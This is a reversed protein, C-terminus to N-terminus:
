KNALYSPGLFVSAFQVRLLGSSAVDSPLEIRGMEVDRHPGTGRWRPPPRARNNERPAEQPRSCAAAVRLIGQMGSPGPLLQM